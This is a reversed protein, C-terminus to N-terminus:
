AADAADDLYALAFGDAQDALLEDIRMEILEPRLRLEEVLALHRRLAAAGRRPQPASTTDGLLLAHIQKPTGSMVVVTHHMSAVFAEIAEDVSWVPPAPMAPMAPRPKPDPSTRNM